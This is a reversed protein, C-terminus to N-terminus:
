SGAAKKLNLVNENINAGTGKFASSGAVCIDVGDSKLLAINKETVGGDVQIEFKLNNKSRYDATTEIKKRVTDIFKQGYFGPEVSMFLVMDIHDLSPLLLSESTGPNIAIGARIKHERIDQALRVPFDTTELHYTIVHPNLRYYKPIEIEPRSVMLHVDLPIATHKQLTETYLEGFSIAPVFHGDMVDIHLMDIVGKDMSSLTSKLDTLDAALISPSIKM